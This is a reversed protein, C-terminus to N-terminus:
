GALWPGRTLRVVKGDCFRVVLMIGSGGGLVHSHRTPCTLNWRDLRIMDDPPQVIYLEGRREDRLPKYQSRSLRIQELVQQKTMGVAIRAKGFLFEERDDAAPPRVHKLRTGQDHARPRTNPPECGGLTLIACAATVLIPARM